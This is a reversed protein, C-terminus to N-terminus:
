IPARDVPCIFHIGPITLKHLATDNTIFLEVGAAAACSLQIADGPKLSTTARLNAFIDAAAGDFAVVKSASSVLSRIRKARDVDGQKRAPVQVEALTMASTLLEDGRSLMRERLRRTEAIYSPNEELLYIFINTDWFVRSM